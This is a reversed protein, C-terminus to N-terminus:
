EGGEPTNEEIEQVKEVKEVADEEGDGKTDKVPKGEEDGGAPKEEAKVKETEPQAVQAPSAFPNQRVKEIFKAFEEIVVDTKELLVESANDALLKEVNAQLITFFMENLPQKVRVYITNAGNLKGHKDQWEDVKEVSYMTNRNVMEGAQKCLEIEEIKEMNFWAAHTEIFTQLLDTVYEKKAKSVNNEAQMEAAAMQATGYSEKGIGIGYLSRDEPSRIVMSEQAVWEPTCGVVGLVVMLGTLSLM